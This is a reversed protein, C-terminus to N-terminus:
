NLFGPYWFKTTNAISSGIKSINVQSLNVRLTFLISPLTTVVMFIALYSRTLSKSKRFIWDSGFDCSTVVSNESPHYPSAVLASRPADCSYKNENYNDCSQATCKTRPLTAM